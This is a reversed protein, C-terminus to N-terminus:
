RMRTPPERTETTTGPSATYWAILADVYRRFADRIPPQQEAALVDLRQWATGTANVTEAVLARRHEFRGAAGSFMFGLLLGFLGYVSNEVVGVGARADKGFKTAQHVGVRRGVELFLLMGLFLAIALAIAYLAFHGLM